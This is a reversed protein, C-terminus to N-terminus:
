VVVKDVGVRELVVVFVGCVNVVCIAGIFEGSVMAWYDEAGFEM